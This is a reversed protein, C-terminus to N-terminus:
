NIFLTTTTAGPSPQASNYTLTYIACSNTAVGAGPGTIKWNTTCGNNLNVATFIIPYASSGLITNGFVSGPAVNPFNLVNGNGDTATIQWPDVTNNGGQFTFQAHAAVFFGVAFLISCFLKKM